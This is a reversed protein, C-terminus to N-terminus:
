PGSMTGRCALPRLCRSCDFHDQLMPQPIGKYHGCSPVIGTFWLLLRRFHINPPLDSALIQKSSSPAEQCSQPEGPLHPATVVDESLLADSYPYVQLTVSAM